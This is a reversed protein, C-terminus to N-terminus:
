RIENNQIDFMLLRRNHTIEIKPVAVFTHHSGFTVKMNLVLSDSIVLFVSLITSM